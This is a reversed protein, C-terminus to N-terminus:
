ERSPEKKDIVMGFSPSLLSYLFLGFVITFFWVFWVGTGLANYNQLLNLIFQLSAFTSFLVFVYFVFLSPDFFDRIKFDRAFKTKENIFFRQLKEFDKSSYFIIIFCVTLLSEIVIDEFSNWPYLSLVRPEFPWFLSYSSFLLDGVIHSISAFFLMPYWKKKIIGIKGFVLIWFLALLFTGILNHGLLRLLGFHISDILNAFIFIFIISEAELEEHKFFYIMKILLYAVVSHGLVWM